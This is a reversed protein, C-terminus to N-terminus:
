SLSDGANEGLPNFGAVNSLLTSTTATSWKPGTLFVFSVEKIVRLQITIGILIRRFSAFLFIGDIQESGSRM